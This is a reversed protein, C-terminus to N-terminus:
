AEGCQELMELAAIMGFEEPTEFNGTRKYQFRESGNPSLISSFLELKKEPKVVVGIPIKCGGGITTMFAREAMTCSWTDQHSIKQLADIVEQHDNRVVLTLAGQCAMPTFDELCLLETIIKQMGLRDLGSKALIIADYEGDHLKRLRTEVNGRILKVELDKRMYLIQAKRRPSATGIISKEPLNSISSYKESIFADNPSAREPTSAIVLRPHIEMPLDKMSHVAFSIEGNLVADDIAKTFVGRENIAEISRDRYKDGSTVIVKTETKIEPTKKSILEEVIEVQKLALTSGRTGITFKLFHRRTMRKAM